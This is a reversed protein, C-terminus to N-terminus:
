AIKVPMPQHELLPLRKPVAPFNKPNAHFFCTRSAFTCAKLPKRDLGSGIKDRLFEARDECGQNFGTRWSRLNTKVEVALQMDMDIDTSDFIHRPDFGQERRNARAHEVRDFAAACRTMGKKM